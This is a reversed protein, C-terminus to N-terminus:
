DKEGILRLDISKEGLRLIEIGIIKLSIKLGKARIRMRKPKSPSVERAEKLFINLPILEGGWEVAKTPSKDGVELLRLTLEVEYEGGAWRKFM